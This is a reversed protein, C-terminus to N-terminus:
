HKTVNPIEKRMKKVKTMRYPKESKVLTFTCNDWVSRGYSSHIVSDFATFTDLTIYDILLIGVFFHPCAVVLCYERLVPHLPFTCSFNLKHGKKLLISKVFTM